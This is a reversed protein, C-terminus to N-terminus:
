IPIVELDGLKGNRCVRRGEVVRPGWYACLDPPHDRATAAGGGVVLSGRLCGRRWERAGFDVEHRHGGLLGTVM